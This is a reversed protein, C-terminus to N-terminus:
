EEGGVRRLLAALACDPAHGNDKSWGCVECFPFPSSVWELRELMALLDPASAM